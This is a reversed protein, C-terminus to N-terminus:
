KLRPLLKQIEERIKGFDTGDFQRKVWRWVQEARSQIEDSPVDDLGMPSGEVHYFCYWDSEITSRIRGTPFELKGAVSNIRKAFEQRGETSMVAQLIPYPKWLGVQCFVRCWDDEGRNKKMDWSEPVFRLVKNDFQLPVIREAKARDRVLKGVADSLEQSSDPRHEFILDLAKKHKAYIERALKGVPSTDMFRDELLNLYHKIFLRPEDALECKFNSLCNELVRAIQAYNANAFTPDAPKEQWRTLFVFGHKAPHPYHSEVVKRYDSLQGEHQQSHVKNEICIAWLERDATKVEILIDIHQWERRVDISELSADEIKFPAARGADRFVTMLWKRLFLDNLGHSAKPHLLWALVNSHRIEADSSRLVDFLNFRQLRKEIQHLEGCNAEFHRLAKVSKANGNGRKSANSKM